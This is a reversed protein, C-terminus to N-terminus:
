QTQPELVRVRLKAVPGLTPVGERVVFGRNGQALKRQDETRQAEIRALWAQWRQQWIQQKVARIAAKLEKLSALKAQLEQKEQTVAALQGVLTLNTQLLQSHERRLTGLEQEVQALYAQLHSLDNTQIDMTDRASALEKSLHTREQELQALASTAQAYTSLLRRKDLESKTALVGSVVAAVILLWLLIRGEQHRM